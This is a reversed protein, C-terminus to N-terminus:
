GHSETNLCSADLNFTKAVTALRSAKLKGPQHPYNHEENTEESPVGHVRSLWGEYSYWDGMHDQIWDTLSETDLPKALREVEFCSHREVEFCSHRDEELTVQRLLNLAFAKDGKFEIPEPIPYLM